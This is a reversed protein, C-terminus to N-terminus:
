IWAELRGATLEHIRALVNDVSASPELGLAARIEGLPLLEHEAQLEPEAKLEAEPEAKPEPAVGAKLEVVIQAITETEGAEKPDLYFDQDDETETVEHLRERLDWYLSKWADSEEQAKTILAKIERGWVRPDKKDDEDGPADAEDDFLDKLEDKLDELESEIEEKADAQIEETRSEFYSDLAERFARGADMKKSENMAYYDLLFVSAIARLLQDRLYTNM